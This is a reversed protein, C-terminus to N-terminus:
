RVYVEAFGTAGYGLPQNMQGLVEGQSHSGVWEFLGAQNATTDEYHSFFYGRHYAGSLGVFMTDAYYTGFYSFGSLYQPLRGNSSSSDYTFGTGSPIDLISAEQAGTYVSTTTYGLGADYQFM